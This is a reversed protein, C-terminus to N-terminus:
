VCGFCSDGLRSAEELDWIQLSLSIVAEWKTLWYFSWLFLFRPTKSRKSAGWPGSEPMAHCPYRCPRQLPFSLNPKCHISFLQVFLHLTENRSLLLFLSYSHTSFNDQPRPECILLRFFIPNYFVM